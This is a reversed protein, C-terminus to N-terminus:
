ISFCPCIGYKKHGLFQYTEKDYDLTKDWGMENLADGEYTVACYRNLTTIEYETYYPSRLWWVWPTGNMTKIRTDKEEANGFASYFGISGETFENQFIAEADHDVEAIAPLYLFNNSTTPEKRSNINATGINTNQLSKVIVEKLIQQWLLSIGKYLKDNMWTQLETNVWGGPKANNSNAFMTYPEDLLTQAVFSASCKSGGLESYYYLNSGVYDFNIEDYTWSCIKECEEEEIDHFWIKAYNIVGVAKNSFRGNDYDAGLVLPNFTGAWGSYNLNSADEISEKIVGTSAFRNNKYVDFGKQGAKHRILCIERYELDRYQVKETIARGTPNVFSSTNKHGFRFLVPKSSSENYIRLGRAPNSQYCSLFSSAGNSNAKPTFDLFIVFDKDEKFLEIDEFVEYNSGTLELNQALVREKSPDDSYTPAYGLQFKIFDGTQFGEEGSSSAYKNLAYIEVPTLQDTTKTNFKRVENFVEAGNAEEWKAYVNTDGTICSTSKDWGNFLYYVTNFSAKSPIGQSFVAKNGYYIQQTEYYSSREDPYWSVTYQRLIEEYQAMFDTDTSIVQQTIDVVKNTLDTKLSWGKFDFNYQATSEKMPTDFLGTLVPDICKGGQDVHTSGLLVGNYNYFSVLSQPVKYGHTIELEEPDWKAAFADLETQRVNQIYIKGTITSNIEVLRNLLEEATNFSWNVNTIRLNKLGTAAKLIEIQKDSSINCNEITLDILNSYGELELHKLFYLNRLELQTLTAPLYAEELLGNNAFRATLINSGQAYVRKLSPISTVPLDTSTLNSLNRIDFEELMQNSAGVELTQLAANSYNIAPNGLIVRKIKSGAGLTATQLYMLSLDGLDQLNSAGRIYMLDLKAISDLLNIVYEQGAYVRNHYFYNTGDHLNLYMNNFPIVRLTFNAPITHGTSAGSGRLTISNSYNKTGFFKSSMYADQNREFQRRQYKKRGNMMETLYRKEVVKKGDVIKPLANDWDSGEGGVYTRKYKREYDLRWLEEPFQGQWTDFENIFNTSDFANGLTTNQEVKTWMSNLKDVFYKAVRTFFTSDNARFYPAGAADTDNDEVGFPIELKGANDIGLATDNDYDWFEFRYKGDPCKGYHWFSNKARNDVMTYRLTFLYYYLAADLIFWDAFESKWAAVKAADEKGDTTLDRTIFRYFDQWVQKAAGQVEKNRQKNEEVTEGEEIKEPDEEYETIYRFGYTYDGSFDDHVLIDIYYAKLPNIQTDESIVYQGNIHNYYTKDEYGSEPDEPDRLNKNDTDETVVYQGDIFELYYKSSDFVETKPVEVYEGNIQEYLDKSALYEDTLFIYNKDKDKYKAAKMITNMPFNSLERNWDMIEVCFEKTDDKDNLRSSDTKKSDGINGIGYFHIKTDNFERHTSLDENTEQIFVVCNYFEMSNKVDQGKEAGLQAALTEYPLYRDFRKQLLANNAHESSAVNTKYNLYNTPVSTPTLSIKSVKTKNDGLTIEAKRMDFDLNRGSYGYENSSTGQGRHTAGTAVWNDVISDKGNKYYWQKITTGPVKDEKHNTFYPASLLYVRLDPCAEALTTLDQETGGFSSQGTMYIQNRKFRKAMEEGNRADAIFNNLIESESLYREYIKLRYIYVDCYDSGITIPVANVQKFSTAPNTIVKPQVPTGDEYTMIMPIVKSTIEPEYTATFKTIPVINMDFEIIDEESYPVELIDFNSKIYANHAQMEIGTPQENEANAICHLWTADARAVNATKFILKFEKGTGAISYKGNSDKKAVTDEKNFLNYDFSVSTGAKICFFEDGASDKKWGGNIWDFNDSFTWDMPIEIESGDDGITFANNKFVNYDIDQNSRGRPVFDVMLDGEVPSVKYPFEKVNIEIAEEYQLYKVKITKLGPEQPNYTWTQESSIVNTYTSKLVDNEYIEVANATEDLPDYVNFYVVTNSYQEGTDSAKIRILPTVNGSEVFMIVYKVKDTPIVEEDLTGANLTGECYVELTHIGHTQKPITYTSSLEAANVTEVHANDEDGDLIFYVKKPLAGVVKYTFPVAGFKPTADWGVIGAGSNSVEPLELKLSVVNVTWRATARAPVAVTIDEGEDNKTDIYEIVSGTIKFNNTGLVLLDTVDITGNKVENETVSRQFVDNHYISYTIKEATIPNLTVEGTVPDTIKEVLKAEYSLLAKRGELVSFYDKTNEAVKLSLSYTAGTGTSSGGQITTESILSVKIVGTGPDFEIDGTEDKEYLYLKQAAKDYHVILKDNDGAQAALQRELADIDSQIVGIDEGHQKVNSELGKYSESGLVQTVATEILTEKDKDSIGVSKLKEPLRIEKIVTSDGEQVEEYFAVASAEMLPFDLNNKQKLGSILEISGKYNENM